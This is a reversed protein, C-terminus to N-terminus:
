PKQNEPNYRRIRPDYRRIKRIKIGLKRIMNGTKRVILGNMPLSLLLAFCPRSTYNNSKFCSFYKKTQKAHSTCIHFHLHLMSIAFLVPFVYSLTQKSITNIAKATLKFSCNLYASVQCIWKASVTPVGHFYHSFRCPSKELVLFARSSYLIGRNQAKNNCDTGSSIHGNSCACEGIDVRDRFYKRLSM